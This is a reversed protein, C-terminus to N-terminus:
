SCEHAQHHMAKGYDKMISIAKVRIGELPDQLKIIIAIIKDNNKLLM